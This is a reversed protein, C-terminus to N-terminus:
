QTKDPAKPGLTHQQGKRPSGVTAQSVSYSGANASSMAGSQNKSGVASMAPRRVGHALGMIPARRSGGAAWGLHAFEGNEAPRVADVARDQSDNSGHGLRRQV